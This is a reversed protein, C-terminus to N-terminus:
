DNGDVRRAGPVHGEAYAQSSRVDLVVVPRIKHMKLVADPEILMSRNPYEELMALPGFVITCCIALM